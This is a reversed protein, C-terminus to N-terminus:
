NYLLPNLINKIESIITIIITMFILIKKYKNIWKDLRNKNQIIDLIYILNYLIYFIILPIAIINYKISEKIDGNALTFIARTLGCGPCPIKFINYVLCIKKNYKYLLCIVVFILINITIYKIIKKKKEM